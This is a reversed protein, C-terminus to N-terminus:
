LIKKGASLAKGSLYGAKIATVKCTMTKGKDLSTTRYTSATKGSVATGSRYWQYKYSTPSNTWVGKSCTLTQAVKLIGKISPKSTAAPAPGAAVKTTSTPSTQTVTVGAKTTKVACKVTYGYWSAPVKVSSTTVSSVTTGRFWVFTKTATSTAVSSCAITSGVRKTGTVSAPGAVVYARTASTSPQFSGPNSPTFVATLNQTGAPLVTSALTATGGSVTIPSANIVTTGRKFTVTGAADAPSVTATLSTATGSKIPDPTGVALTTTTGPVSSVTAYNANNTGGRPTMNVTQSFDGVETFFDAGICAMRVVYAGSPAAVANSAFVDKFTSSIAFSTDPVRNSQIVSQAKGGIQETIGPGSLYGVIGTSGAPCAASLTATLGTSETGTAPTITLTGLSAAQAPAAVVAATGAVVTAALVAAVRRAFTPTSRM